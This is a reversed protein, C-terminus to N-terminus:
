SSTTIFIRQQLTLAAVIYSCVLFVLHSSVHMVFAKTSSCMAATFWFVGDLIVRVPGQHSCFVAFSAGSSTGLLLMLLLWVGPM